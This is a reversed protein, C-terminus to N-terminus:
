LFVFALSYASDLDGKEVAKRYYDLAKPMDRPVKEDQSYIDGLMSYSGALTLYQIGKSLDKPFITQGDEAIGNLYFQGLLHCAPPCPGLEECKKIYYTGKKTDQPVGKGVFYTDALLYCAFEINGEAAEELYQLALGMNKPIGTGRLYACGLELSAIRVEKERAFEWYEIATQMNKELGLGDKYMKGIEFYALASGNEKFYELAKPYNVSVGNTGYLFARGLVYKVLANGQRDAESLMEYDMELLEAGSANKLDM